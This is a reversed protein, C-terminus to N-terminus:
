LLGTSSSVATVGIFTPISPAQEPKGQGTLVEIQRLKAIIHEPSFAKRPM